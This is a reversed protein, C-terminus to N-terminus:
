SRYLRSVRSPIGSVFEYNISGALEAIEEATIEERGQRGLIVVEDELDVNPIHGVDIVTLDMCVRGLIPARVGKVLLCGKSSLARSFGDAYGIPVTAMRTPRSTVHTSGYSVAFGTGVAKLHIVVSRISMVPRLDIRDRQVEPSPWLGYQAIGPRVLDLHTEPMELIAASNAAHRLPPQFGEQRLVELLDMFLAFQRGAHDKDKRDANAFHTYVGEVELNPLSAITLIDGAVSLLSVGTAAPAAADKCVLGLRGMGTDVKVHVQLTGGARLAEASLRRAVPLSNVSARIDHSIMYPVRVPPSHGFLLIPADVGGRRLGVAEDFRAVALYGAGNEVAVRAVPLAGHGYGDAKVVAMVSAAPSTVRRLERCNHALAALDIEARTLSSVDAAIDGPPCM